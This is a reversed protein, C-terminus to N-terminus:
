RFGAGRQVQELMTRAWGRELPASTGPSACSLLAHRLAVPRGARGGARRRDARGEEFRVRWEPSRALLSAGVFYVLFPAFAAVFLRVQFARLKGPTDPPFVLSRARADIAALQFVLYPTLALLASLESWAALRAGGLGQHELTQLWGLETV